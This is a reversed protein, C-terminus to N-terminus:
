VFSREFLFCLRASNNIAHFVFKRLCIFRRQAIEQKSSSYQRVAAYYRAFSVNGQGSPARLRRVMRASEIMRPAIAPMGMFFAVGLRPLSISM